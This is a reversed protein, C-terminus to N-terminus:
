AAIRLSSPLRDFEAHALASFREIARSQWGLETDSLRQLRDAIPGAILNAVIIGYLTAVLAMAMSPGIRAADEMNAFMDILGLVTGIMGMAPAADATARWMAIAGEHRRRRAALEEEAWRSLARASSADSLRRIAESLFPDDTEVRDVCAISRARALEEARNTALTAARADRDPRASLLPRLAALARAIDEGTSRMAATVAAGGIVLLLALPDFLRMIPGLLDLAM